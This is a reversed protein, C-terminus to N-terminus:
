SLSNEQSDLSSFSHAAQSALWFLTSPYILNVTNSRTMGMAATSFLKRTHSSLPARKSTVPMWLFNLTQIKIGSQHGTNQHQSM